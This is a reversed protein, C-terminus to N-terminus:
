FVGPTDNHSGHHHDVVELDRGRFVDDAFSFCTVTAQGGSLEILNFSPQADRLRTSLTGSTVATYAGEATWIRRATPTHVHGTLLLDINSRALVNAAEQGRRTKTKLPANEPSLFPHHCVLVGRKGASDVFENAGNLDRLSIVGEAWNTRAQMGRATNIGALALGQTVIRPSASGFYEEFREFPSFARAPMNLLPTDHNGPVIIRDCEFQKLWGFAAAFEESKGRQTLDGCVAIIDPSLGPILKAAADISSLHERGFHLDSLQVIRFTM